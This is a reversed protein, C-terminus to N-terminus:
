MVFYQISDRTLIEIVGGYGMAYSLYAQYLALGLFIAEVILSTLPFLAIAPIGVPDADACIFVGPRPSNTEVHLKLSSSLVNDGNVSPYPRAM